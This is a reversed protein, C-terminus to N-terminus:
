NTAINSRKRPMQILMIFAVFIDCIEYEIGCCIDCIDFTDIELIMANSVKKKIEQKPMQMMVMFAVLNFLMTSLLRDEDHELRKKETESLGRYREVMETAASDMGVAEREQAVADLFIDEWFQPNDWLGSRDKHMLGEFVYNRGENPSPTKTSPILANGHYRFGSSASSKSPFHDLPLSPGTCGTSSRGELDTDSVASRISSFMGRGRQFSPNTTISGAESAGISSCADSDAESNLSDLRGLLLSKKQQILERLMEATSGGPPDDQSASRSRSSGADREEEWSSGSEAEDQQSGPVRLSAGSAPPQRYLSTHLNERSGYPSVDRSGPATTAASPALGYEMNELMDKTWFHTHSIELVQFASSMGGVGYNAMSVELGHIIAQLVRLIGKYVSKKLCVDQIHDDPSAACDLSRNLKPLIMNRYNEDEMLKRLRSLKLWGVGDGAVVQDVVDKLFNHNEATIANRQELVPNSSAQHGGTPGTHRIRPGPGRRGHTAQM